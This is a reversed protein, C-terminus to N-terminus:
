YNLIPEAWSVLEETLVLNERLSVQAKAAALRRMQLMQSRCRYVPSSAFRLYRTWGLSACCKACPRTPNELRLYVGATQLAILAGIGGADISSVGSLDLIVTKGYHGVATCLLSTEEGRVLAGKCHLVVAEENEKVNVSLM